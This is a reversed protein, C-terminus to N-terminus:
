ETTEEEDDEPYDSVTIHEYPVVRWNDVYIRQNFLSSTIDLGGYTFDTNVFGMGFNRYTGANRDEVVMQFTPEEGEEILSAYKNFESFPITVTQWNETMFPVNEGDEIWPVYFYVLNADGDDDSGIGAYNYNNILCIQIHGTGSWAEPVYIDFQLAVESVPTTSPIISYMRSWDDLDSDNGGTWWETARPKGPVIGSDASNLLREPVIQACKGRGSNLRDDVLDTADCMSGTESWSWSGQVGLGDFNLIYCGNENFYPPTVATGNAGESTISGSETVGSPMIFSYWEGDEDDSTIDTSIEIGGPLTVLTTEHLNTGYVTVTEGAQPLTNSISTVTPSAARITFNFTGEAGDKVLRIIDREEPDAESIPTDEDLQFIMNNDTVYTRNFYTDFGNVYVKEVGYLGSGEVRIIQGLRAYTVERDPVSSEANELYIKNITIPTNQVDKDFYDDEDNCATFGIAFSTLCLLWIYKFNKM